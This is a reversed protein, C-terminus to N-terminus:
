HIRRNTMSAELLHDVLMRDILLFFSKMIIELFMLVNDDIESDESILMQLVPDACKVYEELLESKGELLSTADDGWEKFRDRINTYVANM